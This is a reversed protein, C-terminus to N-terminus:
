SPPPHGEAAVAPREGPKGVGYLLLELDAVSNDDDGTGVVLVNACSTHDLLHVASSCSRALEGVLHLDESLVLLERLM